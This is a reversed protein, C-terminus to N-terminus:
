AAYCTTYFQLKMFVNFWVVQSPAPQFWFNQATPLHKWCLPHQVPVGLATQLSAATAHHSYIVWQQGPANSFELPSKISKMFLSPNTIVHLWWQWLTEKCPRALRKKECEKCATRAGFTGSSTIGLQNLMAIKHFMAVHKLCVFMHVINVQKRSQHTHKLTRPKTKSWARGKDIADQLM